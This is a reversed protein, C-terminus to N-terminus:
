SIETTLLADERHTQRDVYHNNAFSHSDVEVARLGSREHKRHVGKDDANAAEQRLYGKRFCVHALPVTRDHSCEINFLDLSGSLSILHM